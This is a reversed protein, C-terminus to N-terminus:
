FILGFPLPIGLVRKFVFYITLAVVAAAVSPYLWGRFGFLKGMVLTFMFLVVIGIRKFLLLFVVISALFIGIRLLNQKTAEAIRQDSRVRLTGVFIWLSVLTGIAGLIVPFFGPGPNSPSGFHMDLSLYLFVACFLLLGGTVAREVTQKPM